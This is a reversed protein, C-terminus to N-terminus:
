NKNINPIQFKFPQQPFIQKLEYQNLTMSDDRRYIFKLISKFKLFVLKHHIIHSVIYIDHIDTAKIQFMKIIYAKMCYSSIRICTNNLAGTSILYCTLQRQNKVRQHEPERTKFWEFIFVPRQHTRTCALSLSLAHTALAQISPYIKNM